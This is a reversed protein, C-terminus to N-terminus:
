CCATNEFANNERGIIFEFILYILSVLSFHKMKEFQDRIKKREKPHSSTKTTQISLVFLNSNRNVQFNIQEFKFLNERVLIM